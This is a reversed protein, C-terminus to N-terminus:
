DKEFYVCNDEVKLFRRFEDAIDTLYDHLIHLYTGYQEAEAKMLTNKQEFSIEYRPIHIEIENMIGILKEQTHQLKELIGSHVRYLTQAM